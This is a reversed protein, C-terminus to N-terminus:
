LVLTSVVEGEHGELIHSCGPPSVQWIRLDNDGSGSVIKEGDFYCCTVVTFMFSFAFINCLIVSTNDSHQHDHALYFAM